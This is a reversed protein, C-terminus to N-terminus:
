VQIAKRLNGCEFRSEFSLPTHDVETPDHTERDSETTPPCSSLVDQDEPRAALDASLTRGACHMATGLTEAVTNPDNTTAAGHTTSTQRQADPTHPTSPSDTTSCQATSDRSSCLTDLDYVTRDLTDTVVYRACDALTM